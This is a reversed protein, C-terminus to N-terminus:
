VYNNRSHSGNRRQAPRQFLNRAASRFELSRFVYVLLDTCAHFLAVERFYVELHNLTECDDFFHKCIVQSLLYLYSLSVLLSMPVLNAVLTMTANREMLRNKSTGGHVRLSPRSLERVFGSGQSHEDLKQTQIERIVVGHQERTASDEKALFYVVLKAVICLFSLVTITGLMWKANEPDLGCRIPTMGNLYKFNLGLFFGVSCLFQVAVVRFVTVHSQHFLPWRTYVFRDLTALLLNIHLVVYAKGFILSFFQCAVENHHAYNQFVGICLMGLNSVVIGLWIANRANHLEKDTLLVYAVFLNLPACITLAIPHLILQFTYVKLRILGDELAISETTGDGTDNM